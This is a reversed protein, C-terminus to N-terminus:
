IQSKSGVGDVRSPSLKITSESFRTEIGGYKKTMSTTVDRGSCVMMGTARGSDTDRETSTTDGGGSLAMATINKEFGKKLTTLTTVKIPTAM